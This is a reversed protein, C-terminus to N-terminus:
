HVGLYWQDQGCPCVAPENEAQQGSPCGHGERYLEDLQDAVIGYQNM